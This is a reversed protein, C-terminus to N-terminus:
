QDTTGDNGGLLEPNDYINGIVTYNDLSAQNLNPWVRKGEGASFGCIPPNWRIVFNDKRGRSGTGQIIDGEFIKVGNKDTLGTYQGVTNHDVEYFDPSDYGDGPFVYVEGDHVHYSLDGYAWGDGNLRKGRFLIERNM